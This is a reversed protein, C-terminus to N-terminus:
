IEWTRNCTDFIYLEPAKIIENGVKEHNDETREIRLRQPYLMIGHLIEKGHTWGKDESIIKITSELARVAYLAPDRSGDDRRDVAEKMDTDVNKWKADAVFHWFPAEIQEAIRADASRQIFGNHYNLACDARRFRENLENVAAQFNNNM